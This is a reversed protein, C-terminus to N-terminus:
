RFTNRFLVGDSFRGSDLRTTLGLKLSATTKGKVATVGDAQKELGVAVAQQLTKTKNKKQKKQKKKKGFDM